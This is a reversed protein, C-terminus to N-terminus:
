TPHQYSMLHSNSLLQPNFFTQNVFTFNKPAFNARKVPSAEGHSFDLYDHRKLSHNTKFSPSAPQPLHQQVLYNSSGHIFSQNPIPNNGFSSPHDLLRSLASYDAADLLESFSYSKPLTLATEEEVGSDEQDTDMASQHHSAKKYIRCLM